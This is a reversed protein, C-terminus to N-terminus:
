YFLGPLTVIVLRLWGQCWSSSCFSLFRRTCFLCVFVRSACLGAREEGLSTVVISSLASVRFCLTPCSVVHFAGYYFDCLTPCSVVHFAGYYFDCFWVFLFLVQVVKKSRDSAYVVPSYFRMIALITSPKKYRPKETHMSPTLWGSWAEYIGSRRKYMVPQAPSTILKAISYINTSGICTYM